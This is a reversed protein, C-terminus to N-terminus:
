QSINPLYCELIYHYAKQLNAKAQESMERGLGFEYARITLLFAPPPERHNIQKYVALVASPSMAHTTFSEDREARLKHCEFPKSCSVGADVFLVAERGQLDVAHEIQLQFDTLLAVKNLEATEQQHKELLEFMAPGLADDGRSPNGYTFILIPAPRDNM